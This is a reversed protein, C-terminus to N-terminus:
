QQIHHAHHPGQGLRTKLLETKRPPCHIDSERDRQTDTMSVHLHCTPSPPKKKLTERNKTMQKEHGRRGMEGTEWLPKSGLIVTFRWALKGTGTRNV